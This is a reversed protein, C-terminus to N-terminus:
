TGEKSRLNVRRAWGLKKKGRAWKKLFFFIKHYFHYNNGATELKVMRNCAVPLYAIMLVFILIMMAIDGEKAHRQTFQNLALCFNVWVMIYVPTSYTNYM